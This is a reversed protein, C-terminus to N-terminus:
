YIMPNTQKYSEEKFEIVPIEVTMTIDKFIEVVNHRKQEDTTEECGENTIEKSSRETAKLRESGTAETGDTFQTKLINLFYLDNKGRMDEVYSNSISFEESKDNKSKVEEKPNM